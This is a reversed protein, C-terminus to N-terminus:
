APLKQYFGLRASVTSLGHEETPLKEHVGLVLWGYPLLRSTLEHLIRQQLEEDFYTFVLNRCFILHFSEEPTKKRIDQQQFQVAAKYEPRLYFQDAMQIFADSRMADPLNKISSVTYCSRKGRDLLKCDADTALIKLRVAPFRQALLQNWLISLTYPEEGSACGISWCCLTNTGEEQQVRTAIAPLVQQELKTFVQKDRYFRTVTVRCLNDLVMWEQPHNPLYYQYSNMSNLHLQALRRTIRKCVQGRVKRFGPWRMHMQPLAWQLFRVCDSDKM